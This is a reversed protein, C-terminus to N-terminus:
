CIAQESTSQQGTHLRGKYGWASVHHEPQLSLSPHVATDALSCLRPWASTPWGYRRTFQPEDPHMGSPLSAPASMSDDSM